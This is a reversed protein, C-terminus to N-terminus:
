WTDDSTKEQGVESGDGQVCAGVAESGSDPGSKEQGGEAGDGQISTVDAESKEQGDEAGDGLIGAYGSGSDVASASIAGSKEQGDESGDGQVGAGGAEAGSNPGPKEEAMIKKAISIARKLGELAAAACAASAWPSLGLHALDWAARSLFAWVRPDDPGYIVHAVVSIRNQILVSDINNKFIDAQVSTEYLDSTTGMGDFNWPPKDLKPNPNRKPKTSAKPGHRHGPKGSSGRSRRTKKAFLATSSFVIIFACLAIILCLQEATNMSTRDGRIFVTM